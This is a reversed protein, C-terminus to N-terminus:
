LKALIDEMTEIEERQTKAIDDALQTAHDFKGDDHEDEAMTVAGEHHAIMHEAFLKDFEGGSADELQKMDKGSVMGPMMSDHGKASLPKDWERLWGTMTDIEPDQAEGIEKAIKSIASDDARDAALRSMEVAQEHHPIMMQAFMVDADNFDQKPDSPGHDGDQDTGSSGCASFLPITAAALALVRLRRNFKYM